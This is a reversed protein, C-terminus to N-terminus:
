KKEIENKIRSSVSIIKKDGPNAKIASELIQLVNQSHLYNWGRNSLKKFPPIYHKKQAIENDLMITNQFLVIDSQRAKINGWTYEKFIPHKAKREFKDLEPFAYFGVIYQQNRLPNMSRFFVIKLNKSNDINPFHFQFTPTYGIYMNDKECPYKEHGFTLSEYLIGHEKVFSFNSKKRDTIEPECAWKNQQWSLAALIGFNEISKMFTEINSNYKICLIRSNQLIRHM